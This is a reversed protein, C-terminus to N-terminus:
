DTLLGECFQCATFPENTAPLFAMRSFDIKISNISQGTRQDADSNLFNSTSIMM